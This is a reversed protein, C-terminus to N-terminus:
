PREELLVRNDILRVSPAASGPVAPFRVALALLVADSLREPAPELSEPDRLEVYDVDAHPAKALEARALALLATGRREGAAVAGEAAALARVLATAERRVAPDLLLNRSSLALGDRERVTPVAVVEVALGLDRVLRRILALQQFDKQGFVVLDPRAAVLLKTVVTAVGRFHLPRSRGCLPRALEVVEVFTQAGPPYLAADDPLFVRDVGVERCAALDAELPRPYAGLDENAGFQTPNVYISVCVVDARRRAEEVLALHGAHLAGMTPVLALSRGAAHDADALRQLERIDRVIEM